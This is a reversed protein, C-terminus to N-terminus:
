KVVAGVQTKNGPSLFTLNGESDEAMLIMGQSQIGKIKKPELNVAISIQKGKVDEPNFQEAIGAVVTRQDLGTDVKLQMLKKTKPVKEAELIKGVRIDLKSFDELSV